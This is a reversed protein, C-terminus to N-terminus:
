KGCIENARMEITNECYELLKDSTEQTADIVGYHYGIKYGIFVATIVAIIINVTRKKEKYTM